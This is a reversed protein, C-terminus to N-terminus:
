LSVGGKVPYEVFQAVVGNQGGHVCAECGPQGKVPVTHGAQWRAVLFVVFGMFVPNEFADEVTVGIGGFRSQVLMQSVGPIQDPIGELKGSENPM